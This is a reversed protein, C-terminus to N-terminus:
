GPRGGVLFQNIGHPGASYVIVYTAGRSEGQGAVVLANAHSAQVDQAEKLDFRGDDRFIYVKAFGGGEPARFLVFPVDKGQVKEQGRYMFLDYKFPLPLERPLKQSALWSKTAEEPNHEATGVLAEPNLKPRSASFVGFGIGVVVLIAACVAGARYFKRRLIAGQQASAQSFLKERLGAPVPVAKMASAMSRDFSVAARADAACAVCTALHGDLAGTVDSGLEDAAHRRLRLYFQADRCEM